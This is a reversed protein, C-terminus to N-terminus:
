GAAECDSPAAGRLGECCLVANRWIRWPVTAKYKIVCPPTESERAQTQGKQVTANKEGVPCRADLGVPKAFCLEVPGDPYPGDHGTLMVFQRTRTNNQPRRTKAVNLPMKKARGRNVQFCYLVLGAFRATGM